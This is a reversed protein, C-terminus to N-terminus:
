TQTWPCGSRKWGNVRSRHGEADLDGEFGGAVNYARSFGARTLQVAAVRSRAGSRCMCLVPADPRAGAKALAAEAEALFRPNMAMGPFSQLEVFVPSKELPRLDPVGVFSWEAASRCDLLQAGPDSKLMAWAEDVSVDGAYDPTTSDRPPTNSM